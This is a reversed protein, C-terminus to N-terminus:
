HGPRVMFGLILQHAVHAKDSGRFEFEFEDGGTKLAMKSTTGVMGYGAVEPGNPGSTALDTRADHRRVTPVVM